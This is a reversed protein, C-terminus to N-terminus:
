KGNQDEECAPQAFRSRPHQHPDHENRDRERPPRLSEMSAAVHQCKQNRTQDSRNKGDRDRRRRWPRRIAQASDHM